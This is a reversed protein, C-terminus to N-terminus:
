FDNGEFLDPTPDISPLRVRAGHKIPQMLTHRATEVLAPAHELRMLLWRSRWYDALANTAAVGRKKFIYDPENALGLLYDRANRALMVGYIIRQRGHRLLEDPFEIASLGDRIKRLKPSVGEGFISNVKRGGVGHSVVLEMASVSKKSFHSTGYAESRGLEEYCICDEEAGDLISAPVKIRNYQSSGSGYLSTTCLLVLDPKRRISRGAMSSAIESEADEYRERYGEIVEPSAALMAVLKGGLLPGYPAVAGCVSIDAMAIGVRDARAKRLVQSVARKASQQGLITEIGGEPEKSPFVKEIVLRAELNSALALARKSKFLHSHAKSKWSGSAEPDDSAAANTRKMEGSSVFKYHQDRQVTAYKTLVRITKQDPNKLERPTLLGEELFDEVYLEKTAGDLVTTLWNRLEKYPLLTAIELFEDTNWGIWKDRESIQVIPSSLAALGIVPHCPAARDRVLIMMTRGPTSVYQNSWTHRFYRWIDLVRIGTHECVAKEDVIQVYPDVLTRLIGERELMPAAKVETLQRAFEAGDRMLSFISVFKNRWVRRREMDHVFERVPGERLQEDRKVLEQVRVRAKEALTNLAEVAAAKVLVQRETVKIHWAQRALDTLVHMAAKLVPRDRSDCKKLNSIAQDELRAIVDLKVSVDPADAEHLERAYERFARISRRSDILPPKLEIWNGKEFFEKTM